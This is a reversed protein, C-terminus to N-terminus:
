LLVGKNNKPTGREAARAPQRLVHPEAGGALPEYVPQGVETAPLISDDSLNLFLFQRLKPDMELHTTKRTPKKHKLKQELRSAALEESEQPLVENWTGEDPENGAPSTSCNDRVAEIM